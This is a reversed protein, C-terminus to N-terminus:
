ASVLMGPKHQRSDSMNQIDHRQCTPAQGPPRATNEEHSEPDARACRRQGRKKDGARDGPISAQPARNRLNRGLLADNTSGPEASERIRALILRLKM